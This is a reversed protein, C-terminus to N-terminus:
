EKKSKPFAAKPIPFRDETFALSLLKGNGLTFGNPFM